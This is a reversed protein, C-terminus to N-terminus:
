SRSLYLGCVRKPTALVSPFSLFKKRRTRPGRKKLERRRKELTVGGEGVGAGAGGEMHM